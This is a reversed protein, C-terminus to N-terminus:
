TRQKIDSNVAQGYPLRQVANDFYSALWKLKALARPNKEHLLDALVSRYNSIYEPHAMCALDHATQEPQLQGDTFTPKPVRKMGPHLVDFHHLGDECRRFLTDLNGECLRNPADNWSKKRVFEAFHDSVLIRPYVALKSEM